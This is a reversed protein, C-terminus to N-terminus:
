GLGQGKLWAQLPELHDEHHHMYSGKLVLILPLGDIWEYKGEALLDNEPIQEALSIFKLFGKRWLQYVEIWPPERYTQYFWANMEHPQGQDPEHEIDTPWAPHIPDRGYLAAELRAISLQQWAMLHAMVDKISWTNDLQPTTLQAEDLRGLLAEWQNFEDKLLAIVEAKSNM